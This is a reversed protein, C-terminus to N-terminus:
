STQHKRLAFVAELLKRLVPLQEAAAVLKALSITADADRRVRVDLTARKALETDAGSIFPSRVLASAHAFPVPQHALELLRLAADVLPYSILARGLPSHFPLPSGMGRSFVRVVEQRRQGLDPVVVGIRPKGEEMRARAWKAAAELELTASAFPTRAAVGPIDDPTCVENPFRALFEQTQPPMVDFAYAVVLRPLKLGGLHQAMVDPLRATDTDGHTHKRYASAWQAFAAADENGHANPIRWQHILRWAERCQTAAQPVILLGSDAVCTA